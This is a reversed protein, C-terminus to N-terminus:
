RVASSAGDAAARATSGTRPLRRETEQGDGDNQRATSSDPLLASRQFPVRHDAGIGM